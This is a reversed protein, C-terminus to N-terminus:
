TFWLPTNPWQHDINDLPSFFLFVSRWFIGYEPSKASSYLGPLFIHTLGSLFIDSSLIEPKCFLSSGQQPRAKMQAWRLVGYGFSGLCAFAPIVQSSQHSSGTFFKTAIRKRVVISGDRNLRRSVM